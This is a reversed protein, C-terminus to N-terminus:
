LYNQRGVVKNLYPAISGSGTITVGLYCYEDIVPIGLV